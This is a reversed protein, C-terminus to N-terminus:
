KVESKLVFAFQVLQGSSGEVEQWEIKQPPAQTHKFVRSLDASVKSGNVRLRKGTPDIGFVITKGRSKEDDVFLDFTRGNGDPLLKAFAANSFAATRGNWTIRLAGRPAGKPADPIKCQAWPM